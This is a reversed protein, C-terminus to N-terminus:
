LERKKNETIKTEIDAFPGFMFGDKCSEVFMLTGLDLKYIIRTTYM